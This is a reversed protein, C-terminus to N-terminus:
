AAAVGFFCEGRPGSTLLVILDAVHIWRFWGAATSKILRWAEHVRRALPDGGFSSGGQLFRSYGRFGRGVVALFEVEPPRIEFM